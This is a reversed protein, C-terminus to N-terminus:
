PTSYICAQTYHSSSIAIASDVTLDRVRQGFTSPVGHISHSVEKGYGYPLTVTVPFDAGVLARQL